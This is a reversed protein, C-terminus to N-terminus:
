DHKKGCCPCVESMLSNVKVSCMRAVTEPMAPVQRLSGAELDLYVGMYDLTGNLLRRVMEVVLVAMAQNITPNQDEVEVAQACDVDPKATEAGPALLGPLQLSPTPLRVCTHNAPNFGAKLFKKDPINGILVQGSSQGNGADIYWCPEHVNDTM